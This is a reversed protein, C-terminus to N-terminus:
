ISESTDVEQQALHFKNNEGNMSRNWGRQLRLPLHGKKMVSMDM